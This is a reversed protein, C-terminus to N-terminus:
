HLLTDVDQALGSLDMLLHLVVLVDQGAQHLLHGGRGPHETGVGGQDPLEQGGDETDDLGVDSRDVCHFYQSNQLHNKHQCEIHQKPPLGDITPCMIYFDRYHCRHHKMCYDDVM